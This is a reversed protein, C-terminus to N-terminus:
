YMAVMRLLYGESRPDDNWAIIRTVVEGPRGIDVENGGIRVIMNGANSIWLKLKRDVDLELTEGKQYYREVREGEDIVFRLLCYGRFIVSVRFPGPQEARLIVVPAVARSSLSPAGVSAPTTDASKDSPQSAEARATATEDPKRDFREFRVFASPRDAGADIDTLIIRVDMTADGDLDVAREDGIRLVNTGGPVDMTVTDGISSIELIHTEGDMPVEVRDREYLRRELFTEELRYTAGEARPSRLGEDPQSSAFVRSYLFYGAAGFAAVAIAVFVIRSVKIPRKKELLEDMPAPQSQITFNKYLSVIEEPDIGLYEAYNRLFGLLYPDGPFVTFDEEELARLYRKAINTDRAIQEISYGKQEREGRLKDGISEM